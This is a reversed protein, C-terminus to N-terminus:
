RWPAISVSNGPRTSSAWAAEDWNGWSKTAQCLRGNAAWWRAAQPYRRRAFPRGSEGTADSRDAGVASLMRKLRRM